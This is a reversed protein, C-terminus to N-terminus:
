EGLLSPDLPPSQPAPSYITQRDIAGTAVWAIVRHRVISVTSALTIAMVGEAAHSDWSKHEEVFLDVTRDLEEIVWGAISQADESIGAASTRLARVADHDIERRGHISWSPKWGSIYVDIAAALALRGTREQAEQELRTAKATQRLALWALLGTAIAGLLAVIVGVLAITTDASWASPEPAYLVVTPEITQRFTPTPSLSAIPTSTPNPILTPTPSPTPM